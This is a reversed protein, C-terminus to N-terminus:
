VGIASGMQPGCFPDIPRRTTRVGYFQECKGCWCEVDWAPPASGRQVVPKVQEYVLYEDTHCQECIVAPVTGPPWTAPLVIKTETVIKDTSHKTALALKQPRM